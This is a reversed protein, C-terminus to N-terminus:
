WFTIFFREYIEGRKIWILPSHNVAIQEMIIPKVDVFSLWNTNHKPDILWDQKVPVHYLAFPFLYDIEKYSIYYGKICNNNIDPFTHNM